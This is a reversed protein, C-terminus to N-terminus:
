QSTCLSIYEQFIKPTLFEHGYNWKGNIYNIINIIEEEKLHPLGSMPDTYRRGNVHLTDHIGNKIICALHDFNNILYDSNNIPPIIGPLGDGKELHCSACESNYLVEGQPRNAACAM